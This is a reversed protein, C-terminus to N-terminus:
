SNGYRLVFNKHFIGLELPQNHRKDLEYFFRNNEEKTKLGNMEIVPKQQMIRIVDDITKAEM